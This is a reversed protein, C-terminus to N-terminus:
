CWASGARYGDDKDYGNGEHYYQPVILLEPPGDRHSRFWTMLARCFGVVAPQLGTQYLYLCAPRKMADLQSLTRRCCFAETEALSRPRSAEQNLFWAMDVIADMELHRMSLLSVRMPTQESLALVDEPSPLQLVGVPFPEAQSGDSYVVDIAGRGAPPQDYALHHLAETIAPHPANSFNVAEGYLLGRRIEEALGSATASAAVPAPGLEQSEQCLLGPVVSASGVQFALQREVIGFKGAVLGRLFSLRTRIAPTDDVVGREAFEAFMATHEALKEPPVFTAALRATAAAIPTLDPALRTLQELAGLYDDGLTTALVGSGAFQAAWQEIQACFLTYRQREVDLNSGKRLRREAVEADRVLSAVPEMKWLTAPIALLQVCTKM